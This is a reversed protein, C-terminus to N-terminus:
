SSWVARQTARGEMDRAKPPQIKSVGDFYTPCDAIHSECREDEVIKRSYLVSRLGIKGTRMQVLLSSQPKKLKTHIKLGKRDPQPVLVRLGKGKVENNWSTKWSEYIQQCHTARIAAKLPPVRIQYATKDM